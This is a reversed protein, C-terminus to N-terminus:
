QVLVLVHLRLMCVFELHFYFPSKLQGFNECKNEKLLIAKLICMTYKFQFISQDGHHNKCQMCRMNDM